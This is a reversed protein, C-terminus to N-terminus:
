GTPVAQLFSEIRSDEPNEFLAEPSTLALLSGQDLFGVRTAVSRAFGMQHTVVIMTMGDQALAQMVELVESVMEPDLASTVEDFLLAKPRMALARAIAVRQRQGGSLQSPYSQAKEKLGVRDLLELARAEAQHRPEGKLYIPAETLNELASRHPFLHFHQFVMGVKQRIQRLNKPGLKDGELFIEGRDTPTLGHICRLLTSKGSGSPGILALVDGSEVELDIGSLVTDPGFSKEIGRLSIM